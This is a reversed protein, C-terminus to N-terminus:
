AILAADYIVDGTIFVSQTIEFKSGEASPDIATRRQQGFTVPYVDVKDGITPATAVDKGRRDILYGSVGNKLTEYHKNTASGTTAQPDYVYTIDEITPAFRNPVQYVQKSSLRVDTSSGQDGGPSFGRLPNSLNIATTVGTGVETLKPTTPTALTPAYIVTEAGQALVGQAFYLSV